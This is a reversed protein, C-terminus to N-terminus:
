RLRVALDFLSQVVFNDIFVLLLIAIMPTIDIMGIPPIFKRLPRLVIESSAYFFSRIPSYYPSPFWSMLAYIAISFIEYYIFVRLVIAIAKFFNGLIFM